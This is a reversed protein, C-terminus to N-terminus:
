FFVFMESFSQTSWGGGLEACRTGRVQVRRPGARPHLLKNQSNIMLQYQIVNALKTFHDVAVMGYRMPTVYTGIYTYIYIYIYVCVCM